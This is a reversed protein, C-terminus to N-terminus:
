QGIGNEMRTVKGNEILLDSVRDLNSVPDIIRGNKILLSTLSHELSFGKESPSLLAGQKRGRNPSMRKQAAPLCSYYRWASRWEVPLRTWSSPTLDTPLRQILKWEEISRDRICSSRM